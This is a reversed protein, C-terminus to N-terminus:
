NNRNLQAAYNQWWRETGQDDCIRRQLPKTLAHLLPCNCLRKVPGAPGDDCLTIDHLAWIKEDRGPLEYAACVPPTSFACLQLPTPPPLLAALNWASRCLMPTPAGKSVQRVEVMNPADILHPKAPTYVPTSM